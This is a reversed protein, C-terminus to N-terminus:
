DVGFAWILTSTLQVDLNFVADSRQSQMKEGPSGICDLVRVPHNTQREIIELARVVAYVTKWDSCFAGFDLGVV